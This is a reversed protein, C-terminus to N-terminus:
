TRLENLHVANLITQGAVVTSDTYAPPTRGAAQYAQNLATRLELMHIAKVPTSGSILVRDTWAFPALGRTLRIRDIAARSELFHLAKILTSQAVLPDDTFTLPLTVGGLPGPWTDNRIQLATFYCKLVTYPAAFHYINHIILKT